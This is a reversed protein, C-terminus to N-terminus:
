STSSELKSVEPSSTQTVTGGSGLPMLKLTTEGGSGPVLGADLGGQALVMEDIRGLAASHNEFLM